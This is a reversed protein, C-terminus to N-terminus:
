ISNKIIRMIGNHMVVLVKSNYDHHLKIYEFFKNLRVMIDPLTEANKPNVLYERVTKLYEISYDKKMKENLIGLDRKDLENEQFINECVM